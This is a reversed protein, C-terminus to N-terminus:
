PVSTYADVISSLVYPVDKAEDSLLWDWAEDYSRFGTIICQRGSRLSLEINYGSNCVTM